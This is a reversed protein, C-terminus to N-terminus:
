SGQEAPQEHKTTSREPLKLSALNSVTDPVDGAVIQMMESARLEGAQGIYPKLPSDVLANELRSGTSYNFSHLMIDVAQEMVNLEGVDKKTKQALDLLRTHIEFLEVVNYKNYEFSNVAEASRRRFQTGWHVEFFGGTDEGSSPTFASNDYGHLIVDLVTPGAFYGFFKGTLDLTLNEWNPETISPCIVRSVIYGRNRLRDRVNFFLKEYWDVMGALGCVEHAIDTDSQGALIRAEVEYRLREGDAAFAVDHALYLEPNVSYMAERKAQLRRQNTETHGLQDWDYLFKYAEVIIKDDKIWGPLYRTGRVPRTDLIERVREYRWRTSRRPDHRM